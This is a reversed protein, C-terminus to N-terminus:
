SMPEQRISLTPYLLTPIGNSSRHLITIQIIRRTHTGRRKEALVVTVQKSDTTMEMDTM